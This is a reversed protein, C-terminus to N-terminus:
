DLNEALEPWVQAVEARSIGSGLRGTELWEGQEDKMHVFFGPEDIGDYRFLRYTIAGVESTYTALEEGEFTVKVEVRQLESMTRREQNRAPAARLM